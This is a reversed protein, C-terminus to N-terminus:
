GPAGRATEAFEVMAPAALKVDDHALLVLGALLGEDILGAGADRDVIRDRAHSPLSWEKDGGEAGTGVSPRFRSAILLHLGPEISMDVGEFVPFPRGRQGDRVIGFGAHGFRTAVVGVQVRGTLVQGSVVAEADQRGTGVFRSVFRDHLVGHLAALPPDDSGQAM